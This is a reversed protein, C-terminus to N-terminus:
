KNLPTLFHINVIHDSYLINKGFKFECTFTAWPRICCKLFDYRAWIGTM